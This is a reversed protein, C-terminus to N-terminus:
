KLISGDIEKNGNIFAQANMKQKGEPQLELIELAKASTGVLLKNEVIKVLGPDLKEDSLITKHIKITSENWGTSTGPWPTYARIKDDIMEASENWDIIGDERSLLKCITAKDHNQEKPEIKGALFDKLTKVLIPGGIKVVKERLTAPTEQKDIKLAEQKLIPGHDMKDDILMVSIATERDGAAIAAQLPSPGRYKPLKSPHVNINGQKPIDLINQPIIKGYAVIVFAQIRLRLFLLWRVRPIMLELILFM